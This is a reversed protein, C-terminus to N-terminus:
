LDPLDSGELAAASKAARDQARKLKIADFAARIRTNELSGKITIEGSELMGAIKAKWEDTVPKGASLYAQVYAELIDGTRPGTVRETSWSGSVITEWRSEGKDYAESADTEGGYANGVVQSIGFAIACVKMDDSLKSLDMVLEDGTEKWKHIVKTASGVARSHVKGDTDIFTREVLRPKKSAAAESSASADANAM